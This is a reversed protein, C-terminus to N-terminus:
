RMFPEVFLKYLIYLGVITGVIRGLAGGVLFGATWQGMFKLYQKQLPEKTKVM